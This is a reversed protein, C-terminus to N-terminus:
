RSVRVAPGGKKLVQFRFYGRLYGWGYSIHIVFFVIPLLLILFYKKHKQASIISFALAPILYTLILMRLFGENAYYGFFYWLLSMIIALVFAPPVFQRMTAPADLKKNVLPKFLGYQYFMKSAQTLRQRAFYKVRLSSILMIKGGNQILRANFEDDQNRTLDTDFMGIRDFIERRYCGFPVTDVRTDKGIGTRFHSNGMGFPHSMAVAIANAIPSRSGPLTELVAGVNDARHEEIKSILTAIYDSPYECHADIRVIYEGTSHEIGLNLAFPATARPNDLLELNQYKKCYELVIERTRDRSGGDVIFIETQDAPYTQSVLADLVKAIYKEENLCPLIVSVRNEKM